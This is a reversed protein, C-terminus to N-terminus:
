PSDGHVLYGELWLEYLMVWRLGGVIKPAAGARWRDYFDSSRMRHERELSRLEQVLDERSKTAVLAIDPDAPLGAAITQVGSLKTSTQVILETDLSTSSTSAIAPSADSWVRLFVGAESRGSTLPISEDESTNFPGSTRTLGTQTMSM